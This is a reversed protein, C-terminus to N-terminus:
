LVQNQAHNTYQTNAVGIRDANNDIIVYFRQVAVDDIM